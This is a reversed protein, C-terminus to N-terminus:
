LIKMLHCGFGKLWKKITGDLRSDSCCDIIQDLM